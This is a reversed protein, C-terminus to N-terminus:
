GASWAAAEYRRVFENRKDHERFGWYANNDHTCVIRVFHYYGKGIIEPRPAHAPTSCWYPYERKKANVTSWFAKTSANLEPTM